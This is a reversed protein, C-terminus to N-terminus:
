FAPPVWRNRKAKRVLYLFERIKAEDIKGGRWDNELTELTKEEFRYLSDGLRGSWIDEILLRPSTQKALLEEAIQVSRFWRVDDIDLGYEKLLPTMSKM